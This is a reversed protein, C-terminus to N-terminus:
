FELIILCFINPLSSKNRNDTSNVYSGLDKKGIMDDFQKRNPEFSGFQGLKYCKFTECM